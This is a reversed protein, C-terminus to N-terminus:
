YPLTVATGDSQVVQLRGTTDIYFDDTGPLAFAEKLFSNFPAQWVIRGSRWDVVAARFTSGQGIAEALLTGEWSFAQVGGVGGGIQHGLLAATASDRVTVQGTDEAVLRTDPTAVVSGPQPPSFARDMLVEGTSLRVLRWDAVEFAGATGSTIAPDTAAVLVARNGAPDCAAVSWRMTEGAPPLAVSTTAAAGPVYQELRAPSAPTAPRAVCLHRNDDAWTSTEVEVGLRQGTSTFVVGNVTVFAGDPSQSWSYVDTPVTPFALSGRMHGTYDVAALRLGTVDAVRPPIWIVAVGVPPAVLVPIASPSPTVVPTPPSGTIVSKPPTGGGSGRLVSILVGGAAIVVAVAVAALM